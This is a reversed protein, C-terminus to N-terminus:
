LESADSEISICVSVHVGSGVAAQVGPPPMICHQSALCAMIDRDKLRLQKECSACANGWKGNTFAWPSLESLRGKWWLIREAMMGKMDQGVKRELGRVCVYSGTIINVKILKANRSFEYQGRVAIIKVCDKRTAERCGLSSWDQREVAWILRRMWPLRSNEILDQLDLEVNLSVVSRM